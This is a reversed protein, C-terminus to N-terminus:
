KLAQVITQVNHRMMGEYTGAPEGEGALSDSYLEGGIEVNHGAARCGEQLARVNKPAVSTEVFVAKIKRKTLFDVLNNIELTGAKM